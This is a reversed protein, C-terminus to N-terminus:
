NWKDFFSDLMDETLQIIDVGRTEPTEVCSVDEAKKCRLSASNFLYGAPCRYLLSQFVTKFRM